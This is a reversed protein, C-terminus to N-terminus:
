AVAEEIEKIRSDTLLEIKYQGDGYPFRYGNRSLGIEYLAAVTAVAGISVIVPNRDVFGNIGSLINPLWGEGLEPVLRAAARLFSSTVHKTAWFAPIALAYPLQGITWKYPDYARYYPDEIGVLVGRVCEEDATCEHLPSGTHGPGARESDSDEFTQVLLDGPRDRNFLALHHVWQKVIRTKSDSFSGWFPPVTRTPHYFCMKIFGISLDESCPRLGCSRVKELGSEEETRLLSLKGDAISIFSEFIHMYYTAAHRRFFVVLFARDGLSAYHDGTTLVISRGDMRCFTGSFSFHSHSNVIFNLMEYDGEKALEYSPDTMTEMSERSIAFVRCVPEYIEGSTDASYLSKSIPIIFFLFVSIKKIM